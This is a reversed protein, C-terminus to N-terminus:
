PPVAPAQAPTAPLLAPPLGLASLVGDGSLLRRDELAELRLVPRRSRSSSSDPRQPMSPNRKVFGGRRSPCGERAAPAESLDQPLCGFSGAGHGPSGTPIVQPKTTSTNPLLLRSGCWRSALQGPHSSGWDRPGLPADSRGCGLM